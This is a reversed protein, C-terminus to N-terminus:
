CHMPIELTIVSLKVTFLLVLLLTLYLLSQRICTLLIDAPLFNNIEVPFNIKDGWLYCQWKSVHFILDSSVFCGLMAMRWTVIKRVIAAVLIQFARHLWCLFLQCKQRTESHQPLVSRTHYYHSRCDFEPMLCKCVVSVDQWLNLADIWTFLHIAM